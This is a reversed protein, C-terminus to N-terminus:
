TTKDLILKGWARESLYIPIIYYMEPKVIKLSAGIKSACEKAGFIPSSALVSRKLKLYSLRRSGVNAKVINDRVYPPQCTDIKSLFYFRLM